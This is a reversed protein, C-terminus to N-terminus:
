LTESLRQAPVTRHGAHAASDRSIAALFQPRVGPVRWKRTELELLCHRMGWSEHRLRRMRRDKLRLQTEAATRVRM